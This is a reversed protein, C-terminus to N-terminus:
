GWELPDVSHDFLDTDFFYELWTDLDNSFSYLWYLWNDISTPDLGDLALHDYDIETM